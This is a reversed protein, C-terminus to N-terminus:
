CGMWSWQQYSIHLIKVLICFLATSIKNPFQYFPSLVKSGRQVVRNPCEPGCKCRSNCEYIPTGVPVKLRGAKTYASQTGSMPGCCTKRGDICDLCECGIMPDDPIVVGEGAQFILCSQVSILIFYKYYLCSTCVKCQTVYTFGVPPEDLDVNNEIKVPPKGQTAENIEDEWEKLRELQEVRRQRFDRTLLQMMLNKEM